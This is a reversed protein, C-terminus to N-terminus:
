RGSSDNLRHIKQQIEDTWKRDTEKQLCELLDILAADKLNLRQEVVARDFLASSNRSSALMEDLVDKSKEYYKRDHTVEGMRFNAIALDFMLASDPQSQTAETLDKILQLLEAGGLIESQARLHLWEKKRLTEPTQRQIVEDARLLSLPKNAQLPGLTERPEGWKAGPWRMEITRKEPYAEALYKEVKEPTDRGALYIPFTIAALAVVVAVAPVLVWKWFFPKRETTPKAASSKRPGPQVDTTSAASQSGSVCAAKEAPVDAAQVGGAKLMERATQQQWDTSSSQLNALAAQEEPTFDDSFLETYTRLLPGCHNCTAAHKLLKTALADRTAAADDPTLGAALQRLADDSPCEPTPATRVQPEAPYKSNAFNSDALASDTPKAGGLSSDAPRQDSPKQGLPLHGSPAYGSPLHGYLSSDHELADYKPQGAKSRDPEPQFTPSAFLSRHFDLVRNRCSPCDTLHAEVRQDDISQDNSQDGTSQHNVRQHEDRQAAEPGAGSTRNGYNEIQANSLHESQETV